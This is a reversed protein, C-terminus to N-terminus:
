ALNITIISLTNPYGSSYDPHNTAVTVKLQFFACLLPLHTFDSNLWQGQTLELGEGNSAHFCQHRFTVTQLSDQSARGSFGRVLYPCWNAVVDIQELNWISKPTLTLFSDQTKHIRVTEIEVM